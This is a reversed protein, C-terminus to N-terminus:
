RLWVKEKPEEVIALPQEMGVEICEWLAGGETKLKITVIWEGFHSRRITEKLIEDSM